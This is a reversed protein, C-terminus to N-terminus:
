QFKENDRGGPLHSSLVKFQYATTHIVKKSPGMEVEDTMM